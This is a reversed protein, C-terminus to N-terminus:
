RFSQPSDHATQRRQEPFREGEVGWSGRVSALGPRYYYGPPDARRLLLTTEIYVCVCVCLVFFLLTSAEITTPISFCYRVSTATITSTDRHRQESSCSWEGSM